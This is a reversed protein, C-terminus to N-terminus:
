GLMKRLESKLISIPIDDKIIVKGIKEPLIFRLKGDKVKKDSYLLKLFQDINYSQKPLVPLGASNILNYIRSFDDSEILGLELSLKAAFIMGISIAEGHSYGQYNTITELAHGFTHGFNLIARRGAEKEDEEVIMAKLKSCWIVIDYLVNLDKDLIKGINEELTKFLNDDLIIGYKIIEALGSKMEKEPLTKLTEIDSFVSKPQYFSGILNKGEKLDIGVKGGISSDVQALLTTPVQIFKVGRMYTSAVFGALDGIVGGGLAIICSDRDFNNTILDVYLKEAYKLSKSLENDPVEFVFIKKTSVSLCELLKKGYINNINPNTIIAFKESSINKKIISEIKDFIGKGIYIPYSDDKLRLLVKDM